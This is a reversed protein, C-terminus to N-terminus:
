KENKLVIQAELKIKNDIPLMLLKPREINYDNLNIDFFCKGILDSQNENLDINITINKEIGHFNLIGNIMNIQNLTDFNIHNSKFTVDPYKFSELYYLMNSDRNENKSDFSNVKASIFISFKDNNNNLEFIFDESEGVWSHLPHNGYYRIYSDDLDLILNNPILFNFLLLFFLKKM